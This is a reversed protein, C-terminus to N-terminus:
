ASRLSRLSLAGSLREFVSLRQRLVRRLERAEARARAAAEAAIRPTGFRAGGAAEVLVSAGVQLESDLLEGLEQLTASSPVDIRQDLM